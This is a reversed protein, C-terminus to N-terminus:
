RPVAHFLGMEAKGRHRQGLLLTADILDEMVHGRAVVQHVIEHGAPQMPQPLIPEDVHEVGRLRPGEPVDVDGPPCAIDGEANGSRAASRRLHRNEVDIGVHQLDAAVARGFPSPAVLKGEDLAIGLKQGERVALEVGIRNGEADAIHRTDVRRKGLGIAYQAPAPAKQAKFKRM